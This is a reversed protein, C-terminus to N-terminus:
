YKQGCFPCFKAPIFITPTDAGKRAFPISVSIDNESYVTFNGSMEPGNLHEQLCNCPAPKTQEYLSKSLYIFPAQSDQVRDIYVFKSGGMFQEEESYFLFDGPKAIALGFLKIEVIAIRQKTLKM